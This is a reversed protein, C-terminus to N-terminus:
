PINIKAVHGSPIHVVLGSVHDRGRDRDRDRGRDRDRDRDRDCLSREEDLTRLKRCLQLM